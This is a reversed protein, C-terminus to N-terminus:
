NAEDSIAVSGGEPLFLECLDDLYRWGWASARLRRPSEAILGMARAKALVGSLTKRSQGTRAEFLTWAFGAKLRLAGLMFEFTRNVADRRQRESEAGTAEAATMWENPSSRQVTRVVEGSADTLKGHAGAGVGLYDGYEWYNVNHRCVAGNRCWASVEYQGYGARMLMESGGVYMEWLSEERPLPPPKLAFPTGPELTLQYWSLHEPEFALATELDARAQEVSQDPLGYMVDLNLRSFGAQRAFHIASRADKRGHARGLGRLCSDDFSQVGISLRNVGAERYGSFNERDASQPNAELTVELSPACEFEKRIADLVRRVALPSFRSPTGGGFFVSELPRGQVEHAMKGFERVLCEVYRSEDFTRAAHANFDCYPCRSVCWPFHAYLSLPIM